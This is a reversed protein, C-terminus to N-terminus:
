VGELLFSVYRDALEPHPHDVGDDVICIIVDKGSYGAIWAPVANIDHEAPTKL